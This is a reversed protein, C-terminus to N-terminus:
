DCRTVRQLVVPKLPLWQASNTNELATDVRDFDLVGLEQRLARLSLSLHAHYVLECLVDFLMSLRCSLGLCLTLLLIHSPQQSFCLM